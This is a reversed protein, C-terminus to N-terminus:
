VNVSADAVQELGPQSSAHLVQTLQGLQKLMRGFLYLKSEDFGVLVDDLLCPVRNRACYKEALAFRASLYLLDLDMGPIAVAPLPQGGCTLHVKADKEVQLSQYRQDTLATFYQFWRDKIAAAAAPPDLGFLEAGVSFLAPFPDQVPGEPLVPAPIAASAKSMAVSQRLRDIDREVDRAERVYAGKEALQAELKQQERKLSAVESQAARYEPSREYDALQQRLSQVQAKLKGKEALTEVIEGPSEVQLASLAAKIVQAEAEYEEQIKKERTARREGKRNALQSHRLDDIYNIAWIAALGFAPIDLLALYRGMGGVAIGLIIFAVGGGVAAWFSPRQHVPQLLRPVDAYGEERDPGLKTLSEQYKATVAAFREAREVIDATLKLSDATPAKSYADEAIKISDKLSQSGKLKQEAEFLKSALGDVRYQLQEVEKSLALEQEFQKLKLDAGADQPPLSALAPRPPLLGTASLGTQVGSARRTPLQQIGLGLVSEFVKRTPLGLKSRLFQAIETPDESLLEFQSSMNNLQQLAGAGGLGRVLRYVAGDAAVMTVSARSQPQGLAKYEADGGRGDPYLLSTCLGTLPPQNAGPVKLLCYGPRLAARMAPSFGRVGQFAFELFQM